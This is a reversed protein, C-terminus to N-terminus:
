IFKFYKEEKIIQIIGVNSLKDIASKLNSVPAIKKLTKLSCEGFYAIVCGIIISKNDLGYYRSNEQAKEAELFSFLKASLKAKQENFNTNYM